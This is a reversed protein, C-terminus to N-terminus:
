VYQALLTKIHPPIRKVKFDDSDVCAITVEAENLIIKDKDNINDPM